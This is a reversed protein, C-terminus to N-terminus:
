LNVSSAMDKLLNELATLSAWYDRLQNVNTPRPWNVMAEIKNPDTAVGERSIIHGLYEVQTAGFTCKSM